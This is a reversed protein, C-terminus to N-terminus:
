LKQYGAASKLILGQLELLMLQQALWNIDRGTREALTDINSPIFDLQQWLEQQESSLSEPCAAEPSSQQTVSEAKPTQLQEAPQQLDHELPLSHQKLEVVVAPNDALQDIVDQGSEILYAGQKILQHCGRSLPNNVVGPVAMVDRGQELALRATILSGSNVAGEVVLTAHALGSVIRNRQPFHAAIPPLWPAYETIVLGGQSVIQQALPQHRVPYINALGSGLVAITAGSIQSALAGQHACSDIGLALGSIITFGRHAVDRCIDQAQQRGYHTPNRSGVVALSPSNLLSTDGWYFLFIPADPLALLSQPYEAQGKIMVGCGQQQCFLDIQELEQHCDIQQYRELFKGKLGAEQLQQYTLKELELPQELNQWLKNLSMIGIGATAALQWWAAFSQPLTNIALSAQQQSHPSPHQHKNM